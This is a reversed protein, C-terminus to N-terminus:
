LKDQLNHVLILTIIRIMMIGLWHKLRNILTGVMRILNEKTETYEKVM